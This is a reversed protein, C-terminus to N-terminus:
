VHARGIEPMTAPPSMGAQEAADPYGSLRIPRLKLYSAGPM